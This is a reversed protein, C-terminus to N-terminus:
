KPTTTSTTENKMLRKYTSSFEPIIGSSKGFMKAQHLDLELKTPKSSRCKITKDLKM